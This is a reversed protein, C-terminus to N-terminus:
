ALLEEIVHGHVDTLRRDIGLLHPVTVASPAALAHTRSRAFPHQWRARRPGASFHRSFRFNAEAAAEQVISANHVPGRAREQPRPKLRM